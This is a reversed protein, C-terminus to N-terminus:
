PHYGFFDVLESYLQPNNAEFRKDAGQMNTLLGISISAVCLFFTVMSLFRRWGIRVGLRTYGYFVLLGTSLVLLPTFDALYRMTTMVFILSTFLQTLVAGAVLWVIWSPLSEFKRDLIAQPKENIWNLASHLWKVLLIGLLWLFPITVLVGAVQETSYYTDPRHIFNPWMTDLIYPTTFFPFSEPTFQLPRFLSSYANPTFYGLSYLLSRDLPLAEGTLQYKLGTEFISGFRAYNFWILGAAVIALPLCFSLLPILKRGPLRFDKLLKVMVVLSMFIITFLYSFRSGVALGLCLGALILWGTKIGQASIARLIGYLGVLLFFQASAIAAEYVSPRNVLWFVPTSFIATLTFLLITWGPASPFYTKRLWHFLMGVIIAMGSIFILVLAQDEVVGPHVLKIAAAALAPVPGWYLYYKGQFYSADWIYDIGARAEWNFLDPLQAFETPPPELLAFQGAIFADAQRDFYHTYPTWRTFTGASLYWISTFIVILSGTVVWIWANRRMFISIRSQQSSKLWSEFRSNELSSNFKVWRASWGQRQWLRKVVIRVPFFLLLLVGFGVLIKRTKGMVINNDLGMQYAFFGVLISAVALLIMSLAAIFTARKKRM